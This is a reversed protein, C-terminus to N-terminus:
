ALAKQLCKEAQSFLYSNTYSMGMSRFAMAFGADIALAKQM